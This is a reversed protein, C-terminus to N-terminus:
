ALPCNHGEEHKLHRTPQLGSVRAANPVCSDCLVVVLLAFSVFCFALFIVLVSGVFINLTFYLESM